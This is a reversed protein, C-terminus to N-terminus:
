VNQNRYHLEKNEKKDAAHNAHVNCLIYNNNM